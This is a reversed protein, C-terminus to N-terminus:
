IRRIKYAELDKSIDALSTAKLIEVLEKKRKSWEEHLSCPKEDDCAGIGLICMDFYKDGDISNIIDMVKIEDTKKALKVGGEVGRKTEVLGAKSVIQM